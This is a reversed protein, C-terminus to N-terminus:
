AGKAHKQMGRLKRIRITSVVMELIMIMSTVEIIIAPLSVDNRLAGYEQPIQDNIYISIDSFITVMSFLLSVCALLLYGRRGRGGRGEAIASRGIYLRASVVILLVILTMICIMVFLATNSLGEAEAESSRKIDDVTENRLIVLLLITKIADWVALAIVGTGVIILNSQCKRIAIQRPDNHIHEETNM